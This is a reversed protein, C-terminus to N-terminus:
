NTMLGYHDLDSSRTSVHIFNSQKHIHLIDVVGRSIRILPCKIITGKPLTQGLRSIQYYGRGIGRGAAIYALLFKLSRQPV